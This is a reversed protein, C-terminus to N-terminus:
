VATYVVVLVLKRQLYHKTSLSPSLFVRRVSKKLLLVIHMKIAIKRISLWWKSLPDFSSLLPTENYIDDNGDFIRGEILNIICEKRLVFRDNWGIFWGFFSFPFRISISFFDLSVCGFRSRPMQMSKCKCKWEIVQNIGQPLWIMM